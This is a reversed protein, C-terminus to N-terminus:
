IGRARVDEIAVEFGAFTDALRSGACVGDIVVEGTVHELRMRRGNLTSYGDSSGLLATLFRETQDTGTQPDAIRVTMRGIRSKGERLDVEAEAYVEPQHLYPNDHTPATGVQWAETTDDAEYCRLILDAM